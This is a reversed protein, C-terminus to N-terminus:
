PGTEKVSAEEGPESGGTRDENALTGTIMDIMALPVPSQKWSLPCRMGSATSSKNDSQDQRM